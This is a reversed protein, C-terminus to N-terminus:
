QIEFKEFNNTFLDMIFFNSIKKFGSSEGPNLVNTKGIKRKDVKHLHGYFVYDFESSKIIEELLYPEHMLVFSKGDISFKYPPNNIEGGFNNFVRTLEVRDGDCNGFVGKVVGNFKGLFKASYPSVIDGLHFFYSCKHENAIKVATKLSKTNDHSDSIIAIKLEKM